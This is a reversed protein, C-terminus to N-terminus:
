LARDLDRINLEAVGLVHFDGATKPTLGPAGIRETCARLHVRARDAVDSPATSALRDFVERAKRYNQRQELQLGLEFSRVAAAHKEDVPMQPKLAVSKAAVPRSEVVRKESRKHASHGHNSQANSIKGSPYAAKAVLSHKASAPKKTLTKTTM